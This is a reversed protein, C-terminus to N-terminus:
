GRLRAKVALLDAWADRKAEARRMLADPHFMPMAACGFAQVWDGRLRTVGRQGLALECPLNGMLILVKPAVLEVHRAVFPRLMALEEPLPERNQPPRWPLASSLYVAQADDGASRKLGIARLMKDLMEGAAGVFPRGAADEERNPADGLVMVAARPNGDSFVLSRAGRKLGCHDFGDLAARLEDLNAASKAAAGAEAVPDPGQMAVHGPRAVGGAKASEAAQKAEAAKIARPSWPALDPLAYCDQPADSIAEDVGMEVQWELLALATATDMQDTAISEM